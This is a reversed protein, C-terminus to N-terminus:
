EVLHERQKMGDMAFVRDSVLYRSKAKADSGISARCNKLIWLRVQGSFGSGSQGSQKCYFQKKLSHSHQLQQVVVCKIYLSITHM